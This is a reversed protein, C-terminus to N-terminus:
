KLRGRAAILVEVDDPAWAQAIEPKLKQLRVAVERLQSENLAALRRLTDPEGLAQVGRSRLGLILAEVTTPAAGNM